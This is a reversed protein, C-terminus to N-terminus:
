PAETRLWLSVHKPQMTEEVVAELRSSLAALDVEDRLHSSFEELTHQADFKRRYFRHDIFSQVRARMPRFLAAVALTSAAIAIDSDATFPALRAQLGFVLGVYLAALIATLSGYVLTRNIVLDIDYLRYRLIGVAASVPLAMPAVTWIFTGWTADVSAPALTNGFLIVFFAVIAGYVFLKLQLREVGLSRRLRVVLGILAAVFSVLLGAGAVELVRGWTPDSGVLSLPNEIGPFEELQLSSSFANGVVSAAIAAVALWLVPRWRASVPRGTPFLFLLFLFGSAASIQCVRSLVASWGVAPWGEASGTLTYQGSLFQIAGILGVFLFIRGITNTPRRSLIMAGLMVFSSSGVTSEVWYDYIRGGVMSHLLQALGVAGLATFAVVWPHRM